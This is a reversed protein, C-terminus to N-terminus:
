AERLVGALVEGARDLDRAEHGAQVTLRLRSTGQPVTPPRIAQAFIGQELIKAMAAMAREPTGLVVPVIPGVSGPLTERAVAARLREANAALARTRSGERVLPLAALAASAVAPAMGTSFVFSRAANWLWRTLARSGAVFAGSTGFSKGLTGMLVDPVVGAAACVGRGEPGFVGLAHAEDVYLAAGGRRCEEALDAVPAVTGDMSFYADTVVL